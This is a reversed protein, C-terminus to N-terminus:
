NYAISTFSQWILSILAEIYVVDHAQARSVVYTLRRDYKLGQGYLFHCVKDHQLVRIKVRALGMADTCVRTPSKSTIIPNILPKVGSESHVSQLCVSLYSVSLVLRKVGSCVHPTIISSPKSTFQTNLLQM